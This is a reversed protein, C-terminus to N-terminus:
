FLLNPKIQKSNAGILYAFTLREVSLCGNLDLPFLHQHLVIFIRRSSDAVCNSFGSRVPAGPRYLAGSDDPRRRFPRVLFHGLRAGLRGSYARTQASTTFANGRLLGSSAYRELTPEGTYPRGATFPTKWPWSPRTPPASFSPVCPVSTEM